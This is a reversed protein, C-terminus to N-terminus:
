FTDEGPQIYTRDCPLLRHGRRAAAHTTQRSIAARRDSETDRGLLRHHNPPPFLGSAMMATEITFRAVHIAERLQRPRTSDSYIRRDGDLTLGYSCATPANLSRVSRETM